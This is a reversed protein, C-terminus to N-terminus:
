EKKSRPMHLVVFIILLTAALAFWQVAYAIHKKPTFAFLPWETIFGDDQGTELRVTIPLLKEGLRKELVAFDIFQILRPWASENNDIEGLKYPEGYPVYVTGVIARPNEAVSIDPLKGRSQSLPIWGRDVLVVTNSNELLFPTLVNYGVNHEHIQNDLVFQRSSLYSGQINIRKLRLKSFDEVPLLLKEPTSSNRHKNELLIQQKEDARQLQWVGLYSLFFVGLATAIVIVWSPKRWSSKRTM